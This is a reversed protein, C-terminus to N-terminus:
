CLSGESAHVSYLLEFCEENLWAKFQKDFSKSYVVKIPQMVNSSICVYIKMSVVDLSYELIVKGKASKYIEKKFKIM